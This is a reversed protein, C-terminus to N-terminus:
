KVIEVGIRDYVVGLERRKEKLQKDFQEISHFLWKLEEDNWESENWLWNNTM